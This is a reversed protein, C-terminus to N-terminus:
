FGPTQSLQYGNVKYKAMESEAMPTGYLKEDWLRMNSTVRYELDYGGKPNATAYLGLEGAKDHIPVWIAKDADAAPETASFYYDNIGDENIDIPTNINTIHLGTWPLHAVTSGIAWRRWDHKRQGELCLEIGRERRIELIYANKVGPFFNETLYSDVDDEKAPAAPNVGARKRLEGITTAWYKSPDEGLEAKAEAYNLLVEAYRYLPTSNPNTNEYSEGATLTKDLTFKIVQYGLPAAMSQIDPIAIEPTTGGVTKIMKYEPGRVIQALRKDRNKFENVFSMTEYGEQKTFPTGDTMLFTNIFPRVFTKLAAPANFYNNQSGQISTGPATVAGLLVETQNLTESTFLERYNDALGYPGKMLEECAAVCLKYLKDVTYIKFEEDNISKTLNHYKRYSAEYLCVRAKLFLACWKDPTSKDVSVNTITKAAEDLDKIIYDIVVDRSDRDKFLYDKDTNSPVRDFYPVDGYTIVMDFYKKARIFKAMGLFNAKAAEDITCITKDNVANIFYNINRIDEYDNWVGISVADYGQTFRAGVSPAFYDVEGPESNYISTVKPLEGYLGALARQVDEVNSFVQSPSYADHSYEPLDCSFVLATALAISALRFINKM